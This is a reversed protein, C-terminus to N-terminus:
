KIGGISVKKIRIFPNIGDVPVSQGSKGCFGPSVECEKGVADINRLIELTNGSLSIGKLLNKIEGKEILYAEKAYFQFSGKATDVEGGRSGKLYFGKKIDKVAEDFGFDGKEINTNSMRVIPPNVGQARANGPMMELIGATERSNLFDSLIGEKIIYRKKTKVGEDDYYFSGFLEKITPDDVVNIKASIEKGLFNELCSQKRMITDAEAAHGLAEHIIVGTLSGDSIIPYVGGKVSKASLFEITKKECKTIADEFNKTTEFGATKAVNSFNTEVADNEKATLEVSLGTKVTEQTIESGESNFFFIKTRADSYSFFKSVIRKDKVQTSYELLNKLKEEISIDEPHQKVDAKIIDKITKQERIKIKRKSLESSFKANKLATKATEELNKIENSSAFGFCGKFLVRVCYSFTRADEIEHVEGNWVSLSTSNSSIQRLDWYDSDKLVVGIKKIM